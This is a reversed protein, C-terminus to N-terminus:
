FLGATVLRNSTHIARTYPAFHQICFGDLPEDVNQTLVGERLLDISLTEIHGAQVQRESRFASM